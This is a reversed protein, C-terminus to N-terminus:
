THLHGSESAQAQHPVKLSLPSGRSTPIHLPSLREEPQDSDLGNHGQCVVEAELVCLSVIEGLVEEAHQTDLFSLSNRKKAGRERKGVWQSRGTISDTLMGSSGWGPTYLVESTELKGPQINSNRLDAIVKSTIQSPELFM